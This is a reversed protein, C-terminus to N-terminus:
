QPHLLMTVLTLRRACACADPEGIALLGVRLIIYNALAEGKLTMEPMAGTTWIIIVMCPM